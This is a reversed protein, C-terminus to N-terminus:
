GGGAQSNQVLRSALTGAAVRGSHADPAVASERPLRVLGPGHTDSELIESPIGHCGQTCSKAEADDTLVVGMVKKDPRRHLSVERAVDGAGTAPLEM